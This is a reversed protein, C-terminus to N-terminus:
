KEFTKNNLYDLEYASTKFLFQIKSSDLLQHKVNFKKNIENKGYKGDGIIPHGIFSLHARIQHTRGTILEIELNSTNNKIDESIVKYKTIIELYGKKKVNSIYVTSKKSDKFLYDSLTAEKKNLIGYVTCSYTKKIEKNKFKDLLIDLAKQNKAYIILGTTNRDLRHCPAIFQYDRKLIDTLTLQNNNSATVEIDFPKDIILINGDEYIKKINFDNKFLLDDNIYITIEDNEHIEQNESIKINNIRIDKKRLAKYLNNTSVDPYTDLLFTIIKKNDYKLPVKLKRM